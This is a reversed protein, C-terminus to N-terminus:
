CESVKSLEALAWELYKITLEVERQAETMIALRPPRSAVEDATKKMRKDKQLNEQQKMLQGKIPPLRFGEQAAPRSGQVEAQTDREKGGVTRNLEGRLEIHSEQEKAEIQEGLRLFEDNLKGFRGQIEEIWRKMGEGGQTGEPGEACLTEIDDMLRQLQEREELGPGENRAEAKEVIKEIRGVARMVHATVRLPNCSPDPGTPRGGEGVHQQSGSSIGSNSEENVDSSPM